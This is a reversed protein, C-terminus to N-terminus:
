ATGGYVSRLVGKVLCRSPLLMGGMSRELETHEGVIREPRALPV